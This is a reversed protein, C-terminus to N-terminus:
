PVDFENKVTQKRKNTSELFNALVSSNRLWEEIDPGINSDSTVIAVATASERVSNTVLTRQPDSDNTGPLDVLSLSHHWNEFPGNIECDEVITWYVDSTSM